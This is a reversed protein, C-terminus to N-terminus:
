YEMIAGRPRIGKKENEAIIKMENPYADETVHKFPFVKVILDDAAESRVELVSRGKLEDANAAAGASGGGSGGELVLMGRLPAPRTEGTDLVLGRSRTCAGSTEAAEEPGVLELARTQCGPPAKGPVVTSLAKLLSDQTVLTVKEDKVKRLASDLSDLPKLSAVIYVNEMGLDKENVRFRQGGSPIQAWNGPLLPNQTGIRSDPFLVVVEDKPTRQFIYLYAEKSVDVAFFVHANTPVVAGPEVEMLNGGLGKPLSAVMAMRFTLEEVRKEAPVVQRYLADLAQKRQGVSESSGMVQALAPLNEVRGQIGALKERYQADNVECAIYSKCLAEEEARLAKLEDQIRSVAIKENKTADGKAQLAGAKQVAGAVM